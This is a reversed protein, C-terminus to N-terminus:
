RERQAVLAGSCLRDPLGAKGGPICVCCSTHQALVVTFGTANCRDCGGDEGLVVSGFCVAARSDDRRRTRGPHELADSASLIGVGPRKRLFLCVRRVHSAM